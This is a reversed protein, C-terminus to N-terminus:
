TRKSSVGRQVAAEIDRPDRTGMLSSVLQQAEKSRRRSLKKMLRATRKDSAGVRNKYEHHERTLRELTELEVDNALLPGNRM